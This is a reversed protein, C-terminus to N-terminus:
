SPVRADIAQRVATLLSSALFPKELIQAGAPLPFQALVDHAHASMVVSAVDPHRERMVGFLAGGSMVPMVIDTLVCAIGPEAELLDLAQRGNAAERVRYGHAHLMRAAVNRVAPEDEVLRVLETGGPLPGQQLARENEEPATTVPFYLRFTAGQNPASEVRVHGGLQKIMGYVSALGLGTGKGVAKTTFFPEFIRQRVEASMGVGTDVVTLVSYEGAPVSDAGGTAATDIRVDYTSFTLVGGSPMADRANVALNLLAQGVQGPDALVTANSELRRRVSIDKPLVRHLLKTLDGVADNLHMLRPEAAKRRSFALLQSTLATAREAAMEVDSLDARVVDSLGEALALDLGTRIVTLLNNFDHAVGGALQGVAEMKQAQRLQEELDRRPTIDAHTGVMRLAKGTSDREVVRGRDLVWLWRGDKCRLRHETEYGEAEGRVHADLVAQVRSRDDPHVREAWSSLKGPFEDVEYGLMRCLTASFFVDDTAINWDWLGEGVADLALQLREHAVAREEEARMRESLDIVVAVHRETALGAGSVKAVSLLGWVASGDAKLYRKVQSFSTLDGARLSAV